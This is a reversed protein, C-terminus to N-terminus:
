DGPGTSNGADISAARLCVVNGGALGTAARSTTSPQALDAQVDGLLELLHRRVELADALRPGLQCAQGVLRNELRRRWAARDRAAHGPGISALTSTDFYQSWM